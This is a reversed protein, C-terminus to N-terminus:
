VKSPDNMNLEDFMSVLDFTIPMILRLYHSIQQRIHKEMSRAIHRDLEPGELPIRSRASELPRVCDDKRSTAEEKKELHLIEVDGWDAFLLQSKILRAGVKGFEQDLHDALKVAQHVLKSFWNDTKNSRSSTIDLVQPSKSSESANSDLALNWFALEELFNRQVFDATNPLEESGEKGCDGEDNTDVCTNGVIGQKAKDTIERLKTVDMMNFILAAEPASRFSYNFIKQVAWGHYKDYVQSYAAGVAAKSDPYKSPTDLINQFVASQYLLQRLSWLLGIAAGGNLRPLNPHINNDREYELLQRVTPGRLLINSTPDNNAALEVSKMEIWQRMVAEVRAINQVVDKLGLAMGVAYSKYGDPVTRLMRWEAFVRLAACFLSADVDGSIGLESTIYEKSIRDTGMQSSRPVFQAPHVGEGRSIAAADQIARVLRHMREPPRESDTANLFSDIDQNRSLQFALAIHELNLEAINEISIFPESAGLVLPRNKDIRLTYTDRHTSDTSSQYSSSYTVKETSNFPSMVESETSGGRPFNSPLCTSARGNTVFTRFWEYVEMPHLRRLDVGGAFPLIPGVLDILSAIAASGLVARSSGHSRKKRRHMRQRNTRRGGQVKMLLSLPLIVETSLLGYLDFESALMDSNSSSSSSIFAMIFSGVVFNVLAMIALMLVSGQILKLKSLTFSTDPGDYFTQEASFESLSSLSPYPRGNYSALAFNSCSSPSTTKREHFAACHRNPTVSTRLVVSVSGLSRVKRIQASKQITNTM